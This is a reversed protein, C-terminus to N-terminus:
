KVVPNKYRLDIISPLLKITDSNVNSLILNLSGFSYDLDGTLPFIVQIGSPLETELYNTSLVSLRSNYKKFAEHTITIANLLSDPLKQGAKYESDRSVILIPLDTSDWIGVIVGEYDVLAYDSTAGEKALAVVPEREIVYVILSSPLQFRVAYDKVSIQKELLNALAGKTVALNTPQIQNIKESLNQSCVTDETECIISQIPILRPVGFVSGVIILFLIIFKIILYIKSRPIHFGKKSKRRSALLQARNTM